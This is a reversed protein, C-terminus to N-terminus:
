PMAPPEPLDGHATISESPSGEARATTDDSGRRSAISTAGLWCIALVGYVLMVAIQKDGESASKAADNTINSQVELLDRATWGNVVQQQPASNSSKANVADSVIAATIESSRDKPSSPKLMFYSVLAGVALLVFGAIRIFRWIRENMDGGM